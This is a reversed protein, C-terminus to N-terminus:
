CYFTALHVLPSPFVVYKSCYAQQPPTAPPDSDYGLGARAVVDFALRGALRHVDVAEWLKSEHETDRVFGEAAEAMLLSYNQLSSAHFTLLICQRLDIFVSYQGKNKGRPTKMRVLSRPRAIAVFGM